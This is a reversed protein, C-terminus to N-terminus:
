YARAQKTQYFPPSSCMRHASVEVCLLYEKKFCCCCEGEEGVRKPKEKWFLTTSLGHRIINIGTTAGLLSKAKPDSLVRIM